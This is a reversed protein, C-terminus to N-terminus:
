IIVVVTTKIASLAFLSSKIIKKRKAIRKRSTFVSNNYVTRASDIETRGYTCESWLVVIKQESVSVCRGCLEIM